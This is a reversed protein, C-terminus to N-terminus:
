APTDGDLRLAPAPDAAAVRCLGGAILLALFKM